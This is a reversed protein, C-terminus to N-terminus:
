AKELKIILENLENVDNKTPKMLPEKKSLKKTTQQEEEFEDDHNLPFIGNKFGEIIKETGKCFNKENDLLKNKQRLTNKLKQLIIM